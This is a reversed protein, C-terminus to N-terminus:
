NENIIEGTLANVVKWKQRKEEVAKNFEMPVLTFEKSQDSSCIYFWSSNRTFIFDFKKTILKKDLETAPYTHRNHNYIDIANGTFVSVEM